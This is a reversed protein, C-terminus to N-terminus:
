TGDTMALFKKFKVLLKMMEFDGVERPHSDDNHERDPSFSRRRPANRDRNPIPIGLVERIKNKMNSVYKGVSKVKIHKEDHLDVEGLEKQLVVHVFEPMGREILCNLEAVDKKNRKRPPIQSVYINASPYQQHLLKAGAVLDNFIEEALRRDTDNTGTAIM